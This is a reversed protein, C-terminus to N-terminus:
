CDAGVHHGVVILCGFEGELGADIDFKWGGVGELTEARLHFCARHRFCVNIARCLVHEALFKQCSQELVGVGIGGVGLFDGVVRLLLLESEFGAWSAIM